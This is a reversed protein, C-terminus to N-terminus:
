TQPVDSSSLEKIPEKIPENVQEKKKEQIKETILQKIKDELYKIKGKLQENEISYNQIIGILDNPNVPQGPIQGPNKNNILSQIKNMTEKQEQQKKM